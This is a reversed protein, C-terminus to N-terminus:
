RPSALGPTGDAAPVRGDDRGSGKRRWIIGSGNGMEYIAAFEYNRRFLPHKQLDDEPTRLGPVEFAAIQEETPHRETGCTIVYDPEKSLVYDPDSKDHLFGPLRAIHPDCLGLYDLSYMGSYYPIIGASDIAITEDPRANERLWDAVAFEGTHTFHARTNGSSFREEAYAFGAQAMILLTVVLRRPLLSGSLSGEKEPSALRSDIARIGESVLLFIMPLAPVFFRHMPMWDDGSNFVFVCNAALFLLIPRFRHSGRALIAITILVILLGGGNVMVFEYGYRLSRLRLDMGGWSKAYYTNPVISGYYSVRWALYAIFPLGAGLGWLVDQRRLRRRSIIRLLADVGIAVGFIAGEPRTMAALSFLLGSVLARGAGGGKTEPAAGGLGQWRLYHYTGALLLTAYLVTEIGAMSWLAFSASGALFFAPLFRYLSGSGTFLATMRILCVIAVLGSIFGILKAALLLDVGAKAFGALLVVLTFNSYGEVREGPNFVPGHGAALNAAYRYSIFADDVMMRHYSLSHLAFLALVAGFLLAATRGPSASVTATSNM